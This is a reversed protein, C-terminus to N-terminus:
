HQAYLVSQETFFETEKKDTYIPTYMASDINMHAPVLGEAAWKLGQKKSNDKDLVIIFKWSSEKQPLSIGIRSHTNIPHLIYRPLKNIAPLKSLYKDTKYKVTVQIVQSGAISSSPLEITNEKINLPKQLPALSKNNTAQKKWLIHTDNTDAIEYNAILHRYFDAHRAWLWEEFGFYSPRLTTALPPELQIFDQTYSNTMEPGLCHIIYDCGDTSPQITGIKQEYLSSYTSWIPYKSDRLKAENLYPSFKDIRSQWQPGILSRHNGRINEFTNISHEKVPYEQVKNKVLVTPQLLLILIIPFAAYHAYKNKSKISKAVLTIIILVDIAILVRIAGALQASPFFYGAFSGLTLLAYISLYLIAVKQRTSILSFKWSLVILCISFAALFYFSILAPDALQKFLVHSQLFGQPYAGFYWFQEEPVTLLNYKLLKM